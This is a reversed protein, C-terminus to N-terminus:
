QGRPAYRARLEDDSMSDFDLVEEEPSWKYTWPVEGFVARLRQIKRVRKRQTESTDPGGIRPDGGKAFDRALIAISPHLVCTV